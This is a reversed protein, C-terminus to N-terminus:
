AYRAYVFTHPPQRCDPKHCLIKRLVDTQRSPKVGMAKEVAQIATTMHSVPCIGCIRSVLDGAEDYKRGALFGEFFRPPEFIKLKLDTQKDIEVIISAEGEVRALYDVKITKINTM